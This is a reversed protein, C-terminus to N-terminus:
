IIRYLLGDMDVIYSHALRDGHKKIVKLINTFEVAQAEKLRELSLKMKLHSQLESVEERAPSHPDLLLSFLNLDDVEDYASSPPQPMLPKHEVKPKNFEYGPKKPTPPEYLDYYKLRSLSDMLVNASGKIHRFTISKCIAHIQFSWDNVRSNATVAEIFKKLLKHDTHVIVDSDMLYFSMQLIAKFIAAAEKM